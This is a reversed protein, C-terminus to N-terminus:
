VQVGFRKILEIINNVSDFAEPTAADDPLKIQFKKELYTKLSVMSFSDVIGSSILKTDEKVEMDSDEDLYEKKVYEIIMKKIDDSM